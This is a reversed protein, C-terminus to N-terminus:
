ESVIKVITQVPEPNFKRGKALSTLVYGEEDFVEHGRLPM